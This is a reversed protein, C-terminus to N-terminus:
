HLDYMEDTVTLPLSNSENQTGILNKGFWMIPGSSFKQSTYSKEGNEVKRRTSYRGDLYYYKMPSFAVLEFNSALLSSGSFCLNQNLATLVYATGAENKLTDFWQAYLVARASRASNPFAYARTRVCTKAPPIERLQPLNALYHRDLRSFAAYAFPVAHNKRYLGFQYSTDSRAVKNYHINKQICLGIELSVPGFTIESSLGTETVERYAGQTTELHSNAYSAGSAKRLERYIPLDAKLNNVLFRLEGHILNRNLVYQEIQEEEFHNCIFLNQRNFKYLHLGMQLFLSRPPFHNKYELSTIVDGFERKVKLIYPNPPLFSLHVSM